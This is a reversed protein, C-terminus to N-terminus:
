LDWHNRRVGYVSQEKKGRREREKEGEWRNVTIVNNIAGNFTQRTSWNHYIKLEYLNNLTFHIENISQFCISQEWMLDFWILCVPMMKPYSSIIKECFLLLIRQNYQFLNESFCWISGQELCLRHYRWYLEDTQFLLVNKYQCYITRKISVIALFLRKWLWWIQPERSFFINIFYLQAKNKLVADRWSFFIERVNAGFM